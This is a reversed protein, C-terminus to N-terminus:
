GFMQFGCVFGVLEEGQGKVGAAGVKFVVFEASDILRARADTTLEFGSALLADFCPSSLSDLRCASLCRLAM